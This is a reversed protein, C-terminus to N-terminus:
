GGMKDTAEQIKKEATEIQKLLEQVAEPTLKAGDDTSLSRLADQAAKLEQQAAEMADMAAQQNAPNILRIAPALQAPRLRGMQIPPIRIVNMRQTYKEYLDFAEKHKEKLEDKNKATYEKSEEKGNVKEKVTMKITGDAKEDIDVTRDGEKANVKVNGNADKSSQVQMGGGGGLIINLGGGGFGPQTPTEPEPPNLIADARSAAAKNKGGALKELAGKVNAQADGESEEYMRILIDMARTTVELSDGQAATVLPEVAAQGASSLSATASERTQFDDADM